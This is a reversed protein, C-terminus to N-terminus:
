VERVGNKVKSKKRKDEPIYQDWGGKPEGVTAMLGLVLPLFPFLKKLGNGIGGESNRRKQQKHKDNSGDRRPPSVSRPRRRHEDQGSSRRRPSRHRRAEFEEEDRPAYSRRRSRRDSHREDPREERGRHSRTRNGDYDNIEKRDWEKWREGMERMEIEAESSRRVRRSGKTQRMSEGRSVRVGGEGRDRRSRNASGVGVGIAAGTVPVASDRAKIEDAGDLDGRAPGEPMAVPRVFNRPSPQRVVKYAPPERANGIGNGYGVMVKMKERGRPPPSPTLSDDRAGHSRSRTQSMSTRVAIKLPTRGQGGEEDGPRGRRIRIKKIRPRWFFLWFLLLLFLLTGLGIGIGIGVQKSLPWCTWKWSPCNTAETTSITINANSAQPPLIQTLTRTAIPSGSPNVAIGVVDTLVLIPLPSPTYTSSPNQVAPFTTYQIGESAPPPYLIEFSAQNSSLSITTTLFTTATAGYTVLPPSASTAM